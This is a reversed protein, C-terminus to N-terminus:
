AIDARSLGLGADEFSELMYNSRAQKDQWRSQAEKNIAMGVSHDSM